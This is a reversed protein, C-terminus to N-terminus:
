SKGRKIEIIFIIVAAIMPGWAITFMISTTLPTPM